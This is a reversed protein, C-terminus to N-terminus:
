KIFNLGPSFKQFILEQLFKYDTQNNIFDYNDAEIVLVKLAENQTFFNIYKTQIEQLYTSKIQQEYPRNRIRIHEMLQDISRNFYVILDPQKLSRSIIQFLNKYLLFENGSLNNQAFVLSKSISYDAITVPQFLDEGAFLQLQHYRDALFSMELSFAYRQPNEYFSALFPNDAFEELILRANLTTALKKALTTKGAGINGEFAIYNPRM